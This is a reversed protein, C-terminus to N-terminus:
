RRKSCCCELSGMDEMFSTSHYQFSAFTANLILSLRCRMRSKAFFPASTSTFGM